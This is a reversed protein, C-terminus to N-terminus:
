MRRGATRARETFHSQVPSRVHFYDHGPDSHKLLSSILRLWMKLREVSDCGSVCHGVDDRVCPLDLFSNQFCTETLKSQPLLSYYSAMRVHYSRICDSLRVLHGHRALQLFSGANRVPRATVKSRESLGHSPVRVTNLQANHTM